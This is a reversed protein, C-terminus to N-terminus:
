KHFMRMSHSTNYIDGTESAITKKQLISVLYPLLLVLIVNIVKVLRYLGESGM